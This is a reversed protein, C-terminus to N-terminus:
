AACAGACGVGIALGKEVAINVVAHHVANDWAARPTARDLVLAQIAPLMPALHRLADVRAVIVLIVEAASVLTKNIPARPPQLPRCPVAVALRVRAIHRRTDLRINPHQRLKKSRLKRPIIPPHTGLMSLISVFDAILAASMMPGSGVREQVRWINNNIQIAEACAEVAVLVGEVISDRAGAGARRFRSWRVFGAM